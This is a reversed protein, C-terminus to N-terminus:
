AAKDAASSSHSTSASRAPYPWSFVVMLLIHIPVYILAKVVLAPLGWTAVSLVVLTLLIVLFYYVNDHDGFAIDRAFWGIIPVSFLARQLPPTTPPIPTLISM